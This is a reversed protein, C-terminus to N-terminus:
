LFVNKSPYYLISIIFLMLAGNRYPHFSISNNQMSFSKGVYEAFKWLKSYKNLYKTDYIVIVGQFSVSRYWLVFWIEKFCKNQM